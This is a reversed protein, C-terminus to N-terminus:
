LRLVLFSSNILNMKLYGPCIFACIDYTDSVEEARSLIVNKYNGAYEKHVEGIESETLFFTFDVDVNFALGISSNSTTAIYYYHNWVFMINYSLLSYCTAICYYEHNCM